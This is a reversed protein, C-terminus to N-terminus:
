RPLCRWASGLRAVRWRPPTTKLTFIRRLDASKAHLINPSSESALRGRSEGRASPESHPVPPPTVGRGDGATVGVGGRPPPCPIFYLHRSKAVGREAHCQPPCPNGRGMERPLPYSVSPKQSAETHPSLSDGGGGVASGGGEFPAAIPSRPLILFDPNCSM